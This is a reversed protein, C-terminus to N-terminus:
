LCMFYIVENLPFLEVEVNPKWGLYKDQLERLIFGLNQITRGFISGKM